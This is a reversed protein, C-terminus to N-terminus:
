KKEIKLIAPNIVAKEKENNEGYKKNWYKRYEDGQKAFYSLANATSGALFGSLGFEKGYVLNEAEKFPINDEFKKMMSITAKVVYISYSDNTNKDVFKLWDEITEPKILTLGEKMLFYKQKKAERNAKRMMKNDEKNRLEAEKEQEDVIRDGFILRKSEYMKEQGRVDYNNVINPNEYLIEGYKSTILQLACGYGVFPYFGGNTEIGCFDHVERLVETGEQKAGYLWGIYSIEKGIHKRLKDFMKKTEEEINKKKKLILEDYTIDNDGMPYHSGTQTECFYKAYHDKMNFILTNYKPNYKYKNLIEEKTYRKGFYVIDSYNSKNGKYINDGDVILEQDFFRFGVMKGDNKILMPDRKQVEDVLTDNFILGKYIKEVFSKKIKKM